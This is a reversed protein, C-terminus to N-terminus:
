KFLRLTAGRPPQPDPMKDPTLGLAVLGGKTTGVDEFGAKRYCRGWDRKKRVKNKNVFTIMGLPPPPWRWRTAAVAQIILDSSLGAGETRFASCVWAGAWQHKVYEAFPYSTVWFAQGTSTSCYLVLCRGPPVFNIAGISQRNYHRDALRRAKPDTRWSLEWIM